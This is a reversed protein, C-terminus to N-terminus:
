PSRIQRELEARNAEGLGPVALADQFLRQAAAPDGRKRAIMGRYFLDTARWEPRLGSETARRLLPEARDFQGMAYYSNGLLHLLQPNKRSEESLAAVSELLRAAAEYEKREFRASALSLRARILLFILRWEYAQPKVVVGEATYAVTQGRERRLRSRVEEPQIPFSWYREEIAKAQAVPVVKWLVGAPVLARDTRLMAPSILRDTFLPVGADANENLFAAVAVDILDAQPFRGAMSAYDPKRLIPHRRVVADDYWDSGTTARSCLFSATILAVDTREGRVRQLYGALANPDDGSLVVVAGPDLPQLITRGFQEALDYRRQSVDSFNAALAWAVGALGAAGLLERGRPAVRTAIRWAGLGAALSLPLWSAVFWCDHQGEIKFLITITAYPLLWLLIGLLLKRNSSALTALGVAVLVLGVGLMEEWLFLGFSAARDADYGFVGSMRVFQRGSVYKLFQELTEVHGMKLWPDRAMLIPLLIISPGAACAAAVGTGMAVGKAGLTRAHVAVFAAFAAGALTASPHLQWAVGILAAVLLFDRRLGSEDARIMRWLLLTLVLYFLGYGKAYIGVSWFTYGCALLAGALMGCYGALEGPDEELVKFIKGRSRLLDRVALAMTGAALAACFSSFLHVALTFDLFSLLLTWAKCVVLYLGFGPPYLVGLEKVGMLYLASDQWYPHAGVTALSLSLSLLFPVGPVIWRKM